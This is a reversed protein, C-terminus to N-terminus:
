EKPVTVRRSLTVKKLDQEFLELTYTGAKLEGLPVWVFYPHLDHTRAGEKTYTLRVVHRQVEASKVRWELPESGAVGLYAV